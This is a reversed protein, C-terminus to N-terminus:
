PAPAHAIVAGARGTPEGERRHSYFRATDCATCLSLRSIHAPALGAAILQATNAAVLDLKGKGAPLADWLAHPSALTVTAVAALM